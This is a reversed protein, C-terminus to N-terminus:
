KQLSRLEICEHWEGHGVYLERYLKGCVIEWTCDGAKLHGMYRTHPLLWLMVRLCCYGKVADGLLLGKFLGTEFGEAVNVYVNLYVRVNVYM